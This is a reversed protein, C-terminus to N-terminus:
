LDLDKLASEAASNSEGKSVLEEQERTHLKKLREMQKTVWELIDKTLEEISRDFLHNINDEQEIILSVEKITQDDELEIGKLLAAFSEESIKSFVVSSGMRRILDSM